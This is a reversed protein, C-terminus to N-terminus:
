IAVDSKGEVMAFLESKLVRDLYLLEQIKQTTAAHEEITRMGILHAPDKILNEILHQHQVVLNKLSITRKELSLLCETILEVQKVSQHQGIFFLREAFLKQFFRSEDELFLVQSMWDKNQLYLEQLETSLLSEEITEM